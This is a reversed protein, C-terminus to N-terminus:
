RRRKSSFWQPQHSDKIELLASRTSRFRRHHCLRPRHLRRSLDRFRRLRLMQGEGRQQADGDLVPSDYWIEDFDDRLINGVVLPIFGCPTIDGNPRLHLSLKGCSSGKVLPNEEYGPLSAIVPDDFSISLDTTEAKVALAEVYFAQWEEPSCISNRRPKQFGPRQM